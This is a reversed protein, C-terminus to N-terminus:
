VSGDPRPAGRINKALPTGRREDAGVDYEVRQGALLQEFPIAGKVDKRNFFLDGGSKAPGEPLIYGFGRDTALNKITGWAM